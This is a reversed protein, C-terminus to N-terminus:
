QPAEGPATAVLAVVALELLYLALTGTHDFIWFVGSVLAEDPMGGFRVRLREARSPYEKGLVIEEFRRGARSRAAAFRGKIRPYDDNVPSKTFHGVLENEWYLPVARGEVRAWRETARRVAERTRDAESAAGADDGVARLCVALAKRLDPDDPSIALADRFAGIAQEYESRALHGLGRKRHADLEAARPNERFEPKADGFLWGFLGM